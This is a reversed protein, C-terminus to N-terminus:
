VYISKDEWLGRLLTEDTNFLSYPTLNHARLHELIKMREEFPIVFKWLLDQTNGVATDPQGQDNDFADEHSSYHYYDDGYDKKLAVTYESQQLFHRMDGIVSPGINWISSKNGQSGKGCGTDGLYAFIAVHKAREPPDKEFAFYAAIYPSRTWDLLPSPFGYHRLYILYKLCETDYQDNSDKFYPMRTLDKAWKEYEMPSPLKWQRGTAEEIVPNISLILRGYDQLSWKKCAKRELTTRLKWECDAQGRFLLDDVHSPYSESARKERVCKLKRLEVEFDEWTKCSVERVM